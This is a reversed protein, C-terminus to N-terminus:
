IDPINTYYGHIHFIYLDSILYIQIILPISYHNIERVKGTIANLSNETIRMNVSTACATMPIHSNACNTSM